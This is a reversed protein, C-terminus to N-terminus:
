SGRGDKRFFRSIQLEFLLQHHKLVGTQLFERLSIEETKEEKQKAKNSETTLLKLLRPFDKLICFNAFCTNTFVVLINKMAFFVSFIILFINFEFTGAM